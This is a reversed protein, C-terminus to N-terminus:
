SNDEAAQIESLWDGFPMEHDEDLGTQEEHDFELETLLRRARDLFQKRKM